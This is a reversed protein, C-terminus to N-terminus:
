IHMGEVETMPCDACPSVETGGHTPHGEKCDVESIATVLSGLPWRNLEKM